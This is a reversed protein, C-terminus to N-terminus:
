RQFRKSTWAPLVVRAGRKVQVSGNSMVDGHAGYGMIEARSDFSNTRSGHDMEVKEEAFLGHQFLSYTDIVLEFPQTAGPTPLEGGPLTGAIHLIQRDHDIHPSGDLHWSPDNPAVAHLKREEHRLLYTNFEHRSYHLTDSDLSSSADLSFLGPISEDLRQMLFGQANWFVLDDRGFRLPYGIAQARFVRAHQVKSFDLSILVVGDRTVAARYESFRHEAPTTPVAIPEPAVTFQADDAVMLIQGSSDAVRIEAPGLPLSPLAVALHPVYAGDALDRRIEAIAMVSASAGNVGSVFTVEYSAGPEIDPHFLTVEMDTYTAAPRVEAPAPAPKTCGCGAEAMLPLGAAVLAALAASLGLRRIGSGMITEV